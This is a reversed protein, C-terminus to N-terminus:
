AELAALSAPFHLFNPLCVIVADVQRDQLLEEYHGYSKAPAYENEFALRRKDDCAYLNAADVQRVAVAHM